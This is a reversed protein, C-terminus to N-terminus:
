LYKNSLKLIGQVAAADSPTKVTLQLRDILQRVLEKSIEESSHYAVAFNPYTKRVWAVFKNVAEFTENGPNGDVALGYGFRNLALQLIYAKKSKKGKRIPYSGDPLRDFLSGEPASFDSSAPLASFSVALTDADAASKLARKRAVYYYTVGTVAGAAILGAAWYLIQRKDEMM